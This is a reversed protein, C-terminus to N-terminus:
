TKAGDNVDSTLILERKVVPWTGDIPGYQVIFFADQNPGKVLLDAGKLGLFSTGSQHGSVNSTV